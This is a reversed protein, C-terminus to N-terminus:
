PRCMLSLLQSCSMGQMGEGPVTGHLQLMCSGAAGGPAQNAGCVGGEGAHASRFARLMGESEPGLSLERCLMLWLCHLLRLPATVEPFWRCFNHMLVAAILTKGLGTPLCVLTNRLLASKIIDIQYSRKPVQAPYM